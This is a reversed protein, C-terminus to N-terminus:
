KGKRFLLFVERNGKKGRLNSVRRALFKFKMEKAAKLFEHIKSDVLAEDRVIGSKPVNDKGVEFQPKFLAVVLAGDLALKSVSPFVELLSIFSVDILVIDAGPDVDAFKVDRIDKNEMLTVRSDSKVPEVMQETGVDVSFVHKAGKQLAVQTFGGTSSGIDLVNAGNFEIEVDQLFAFLKEGSRSVFIVGEVRVSNKEEVEFKPKRILVDDVFVKGSKILDQAKSRSVAMENELLYLDLRM